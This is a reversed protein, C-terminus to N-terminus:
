LSFPFSYANHSFIWIFFIHFMPVKLNVFGLIPMLAGVSVSRPGDSPHSAEPHGVKSTM